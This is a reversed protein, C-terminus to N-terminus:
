VGRGSPNDHVEWKELRVTVELSSTKSDVQKGQKKAALSKGDGADCFCARNKVTAKGNEYNDREYFVFLSVLLGTFM